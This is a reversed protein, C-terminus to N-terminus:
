MCAQTSGLFHVLIRHIINLLALLAPLISSSNAGWPGRFSFPVQVLRPARAWGVSAVHDTQGGSKQRDNSDDNVTWCNQSSRREDNIM